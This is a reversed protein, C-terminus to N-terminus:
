TFNRATAIGEMDYGCHQCKQKNNGLSMMNNIKEFLIEHVTHGDDNTWLTYPILDITNSYNTFDIDDINLEIDDINEDEFKIYFDHIFCKVFDDFEAKKEQVLKYFEYMTTLEPLSITGTLRNSKGNDFAIDSVDFKEIQDITDDINIEIRTKKKCEPCEIDFDKLINNSRYFDLLIKIRDLETLKNIDLKDDMCTERIMAVVTKFTDFPQENSQILLKAVIKVQSTTLQKFPIKRKLSPIYFETLSTNLGSELAKQIANIDITKSM